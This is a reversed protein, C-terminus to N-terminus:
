KGHRSPLGSMDIAQIRVVLVPCPSRRIVEEATSGLLMQAVGTRGHTGLIILDTGLQRASDIIIEAAVGQRVVTTRLVPSRLGAQECIRAAAMEASKAIREYELPVPAVPEVYQVPPEIAHLLTIAAGFQEAVGLAYQLARESVKSFDTPALIERITFNALTTGISSELSEMGSTTRAPRAPREVLSKENQM